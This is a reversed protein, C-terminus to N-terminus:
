YFIKCCMRYRGFDRAKLAKLLMTDGPLSPFRPYYRELLQCTLVFVSEQIEPNLGKIRDQNLRVQLMLYAFFAADMPLGAEAHENLLQETIWYTEIARPKGQSTKVIGEQNIRYGYCIHPCGCVINARPFILYSLLSDEYWFGRPFQLKEFIEAKYLKGWAHGHLDYPNAIRRAADYQHMLTQHDEFVYYASGEVLDCDHAYATDLLAEIAGPCLLDDSDIFMLYRGFIEKLGTNRAGSLGQNEQHIVTVNPHHAYKDAIEATRDKAGDEVLVVHYSYRTKQSLVSDMCDELYAEVNYAPIIIQLDCAAPLLKNAATSTGTPRPAAALLIERAAHPDLTSKHSFLPSALTTGLRLGKKVIRKCDTLTM